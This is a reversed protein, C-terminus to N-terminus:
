EVDTFTVDYGDLPADIDSGSPLIIDSDSEDITLDIEEAAAPPTNDVLSLLYNRLSDLGLDAVWIIVGLVAVLALTVMTNKVVERFTPWTIKKVESRLERFWKAIRQRLPKKEKGPATPKAPLPKGSNKPKDSM